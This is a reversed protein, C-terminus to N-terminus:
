GRSDAKHEWDVINGNFNGNKDIELITISCDFQEKVERAFEIAGEEDGEYEIALEFKKKM